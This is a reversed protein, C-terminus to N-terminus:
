SGGAAYKLGTGTGTTAWTGLIGTSDVATSTKTAGTLSSVNLVGGSNRTIAGLDITNTATGNTITAFGPNITTGNFTQTNTGTKTYSLTGSRLVLASSSSISGSLTTTGQNLTTAGTYTNAGALTLTGTGNKTLGFASGGDSIVNNVTLGGSGVNWTQSAGLAININQNATSSGITVAGTGVKLGGSGLTLTQNSGSTTNSLTVASTDTFNISNAAAAANINVTLAGAVNSPGFITLDDSSTPAALTSWNTGTGWIGNTAGIWTESAANASPVLFNVVIAVTLASAGLLTKALGKPKM